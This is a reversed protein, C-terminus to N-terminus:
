VNTPTYGAWCAVKQFALRTPSNPPSRARTVVTVDVGARRLEAALSWGFCNIFAKSACYAALRATPVMGATSGMVLIKGSRRAKMRRGFLVSLKLATVVNLGIMTEIRDLDVQTPEGYIAFGANNILIDVDFNEDDCWQILDEAARPLSLDAQKITLRGGGPDLDRRLADLEDALLSVAIM